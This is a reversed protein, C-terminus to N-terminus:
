QSETLDARLSRVVGALDESPPQRLEVVPAVAPEAQVMSWRRDRDTPCLRDFDCYVCNDFSVRGPRYTVDGPVAPFAGADIGDVITSVVDRLRDIVEEDVACSLTEDERNWGTFWYRAHVPGDLTRYARAALAYLALQLKTGGAVPDRKLASAASERGTKYDSVVLSQGPGLDIRDVSGGFRATRGGALELEVAGVSRGLAAVDASPELRDEAVDDSAGLRGFGLEVAVPELTDEEFFRRLERILTAREVRAMLPPGCRGEDAAAGFRVEAIELLRDLSAPAGDNIREGVYTALIDHVMTGRDRPEMQDTAEPLFREKLRLERELLYRRPCTAYSELRTPSLEDAIGRALGPGVRGEFRTFGPGIPSRAAAVSDTM